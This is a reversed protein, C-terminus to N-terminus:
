EGYRAYKLDGNTSDYYSIHPYGGADLALSTYHGVVGATDVSDPGAPSALGDWASGTWRAYKLDGNTIDYYSIHPYGGADLAISTFSGISGATDVSDPGAPSALGDWASGTWRAYKLDGNTADYYSIHPYGGADLAISTDFGVVGATDVSDPGAPSALGDWASGTWRAYKLDSNTNDYYSIHPYGGADLAISTYLGVSEATDVSDPGAPGALGDWASGTWRAYKLYGNTADYYSIHPYGGADLVISTYFGVDGATDVSDPGAPSALGDWASGTWRAYKLDGSTADRYSIHPYGNADLAISTYGGVDGATDVSDPGAPSALGDWASGTWRAYKLDENTTDYYSIHPYGGADLAISTYYGVTDVSEINWSLASGGDPITCGAAVLLVATGLVALTATLLTKSQRSRIYM